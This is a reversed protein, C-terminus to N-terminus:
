RPLRFTAVVGAHDSHFLGFPTRDTAPNEGVIDAALTRFGGHHLILDIREDFPPVPTLLMNEWCCTLGPDGPHADSWADDFGAARLIGYTPTGPMDARSNFDGIFLTPGSTAGPGTLLETAQAVQVGAHSGELHTNVFRFKKGRIKLDLATWGRELTIPGVITPITLNTTFNAAQPIRWRLDAPRLDARVLIAVRDTVRVDFGLALPVEDDGNTM